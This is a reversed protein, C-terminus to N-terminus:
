PAEAENGAPGDIVVFAAAIEREHSLSIRVRTGGLAELRARAAGTLAIGPAGSEEHIVGIQGPAVGGSFGTGLAKAVAEKAAFMAAASQPASKGRSKLYAREEQTYVRQMFHEREMARAIRPVSCLDVGVGIVDSM